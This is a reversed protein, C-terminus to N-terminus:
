WPGPPFSLFVINILHCLLVWLIDDGRGYKLYVLFSVGRLSMFLSCKWPLSLISSRTALDTSLSTNSLFNEHAKLPACCPVLPFMLWTPLSFFSLLTFFSYSLPGAITLLSPLCGLTPTWSACELCRRQGWDLPFFLLLLFHWQEFATPNWRRAALPHSSLILATVPSDWGHDLLTAWCVCFLLQLEKTM